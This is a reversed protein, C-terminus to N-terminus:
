SALPSPEQTKTPPCQREGDAPLRHLYIGRQPATMDVGLLPLKFFRHGRGEGAAKDVPRFLSEVVDPEIRLRSCLAFM